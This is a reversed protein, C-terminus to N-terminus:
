GYFSGLESSTSLHNMDNQLWNADKPDNEIECCSCVRFQMRPPPLKISVISLFRRTHEEVIWKKFLECSDNNFLSLWNCKLWDFSFSRYHVIVPLLTTSSEEGRIPNSLNEWCLKRGANVSTQHSSYEFIAWQKVYNSSSQTPRSRVNLCDTMSWEGDNLSCGHLSLPWM